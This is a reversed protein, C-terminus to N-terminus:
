QQRVRRDFPEGGQLVCIHWRGIWDVMMNLEVPANQIM